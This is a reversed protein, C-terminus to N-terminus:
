PYKCPVRMEATLKADSNTTNIVWMFFNFSEADSPLTGPNVGWIIDVMMKMDSEAQISFRLGDIFEAEQIGQGGTIHNL